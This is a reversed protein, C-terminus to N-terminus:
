GKVRRYLSSLLEYTPYLLFAVTVVINFPQPLLLLSGLAGFVGFYATLITQKRSTEEEYLTRAMDDLEELLSKLMDVEDSLRLREKGHEMIRRNPDVRFLSVNNYEELGEMLGERMEVIESPKMTEGRKRRERIEEFKNRCVSTYVRLIMHSLLLFEVPQVLILERQRYALEKDKVSELEEDLTASGLFLPAGTTVLTAYHVDGSLNEGLDKRATGERYYRWAGHAGSIGVLERLHREVAEEATKCKYNCSHKRICVARSVPFYPVRLKEMIKNGAIDGRKLADFVADYGGYEDKFLVAAHLPKMINQLIFERLTGEIINGFPDEITCEAGYLEYEIKILDDTSFNGNLHIWATLVGVGASHLLLYLECKLENLYSLEKDKISMSLDILKLRAYRSLKLYEPDFTLEDASIIAGFMAHVRKIEEMVRKNKMLEGVGIKEPDEIKLEKAKRYVFRPTPSAGGPPIWIGEVIEYIGPLLYLLKEPDKVEVPTGLDFPIIYVLDIDEFRVEESGAQEKANM